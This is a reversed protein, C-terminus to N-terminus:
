FAYDFEVSNTNYNGPYANLGCLNTATTPNMNKWGQAGPWLTDAPNTASHVYIQAPCGTEGAQCATGQLLLSVCARYPIAYFSVRFRKATVSYIWFNTPGWPADARAPNTANAYSRPIAGATIMAGTLINNPQTYPAPFTSQQTQKLVIINNAVTQLQIVADNIRQEERASSAVAWITALVTGAIALVITMEVLSFGRRIKKGKKKLM